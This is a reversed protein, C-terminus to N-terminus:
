LKHFICPVSCGDNRDPKTTFWLTRNTMCILSMFLPLAAINVYNYSLGGGGPAKTYRENSKLYSM